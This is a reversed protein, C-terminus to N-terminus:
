YSRNQVIWDKFYIQIYTCNFHFLEKKSFNFSIFISLYNINMDNKLWMISLIRGTTKYKFFFFFFVYNALYLEPCTFIRKCNTKIYKLVVNWIILLTECETKLFSHCYSSLLYGWILSRLNLKMQWQHAQRFRPTQLIKTTILKDRLQLYM